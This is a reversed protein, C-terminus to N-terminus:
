RKEPQMAKENPVPQYLFFIENGYGWVHDTVSHLLKFDYGFGSKIQFPRSTLFFVTALNNFKKGARVIIDIDSLANETIDLKENHLMYTGYDEQEAYWFRRHPLFAAVASAKASPYAVITHGQLNMRQIITEIAEAMPRSGSFFVHKDSIHGNRAYMTSWLMCAGAILMALTGAHFRLNLFPILRGEEEGERTERHIWHLFLLLLLVFGSHRALANYKYYFIYLPGAFSGAFLLLMAPNKRFHVVTLMLASLAIAIILGDPVRQLFPIFGQALGLFPGQWNGEFPIGYEPHGAPLTSGTLFAWVGGAAILVLATLREKSLVKKRWTEYLFFGALSAAATFCLYTSQFLAFLCLAYLRPRRNRSSYFVATLILFLVGLTYNRAIISYEFFMYYSFAFIYKTARSFPARFLFVALAAAMLAINLFFLTDYPLGSKAFPILVLYWLSPHRQAPIERFLLDMFGADRALMWPQAEDRWPEHHLVTMVNLAIYAALVLLDLGRLIKKRDWQM